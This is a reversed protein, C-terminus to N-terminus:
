ATIILNSLIIFIFIEFFNFFFNNPFYFFFKLPKSRIEKDRQIPFFFQNNGAEEPVTSKFIIFSRFIFSVASSKIM